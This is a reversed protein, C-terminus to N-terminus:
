EQAGSTRRGIIKDHGRFSGFTITAPSPFEKGGGNWDYQLHDLGSLGNFDIQFSGTNGIGPASFILGSTGDVLTVTSSALSTYSATATGSGVTVGATLAAGGFQILEPFSTCDDLTNRVWASGNYYQTELTAPLDVTEPGSAGALRLRGHRLRLSSPLIQGTCSGTCDGAEGPDFDLGALNLGDLSDSIIVGVNALLETNPSTGESAFQGSSSDVSYVGSSWAATAGSLRSALNVGDDATSELGISVDAVDYGRAADYNSVVDGLANKATIKYDIDIASEDFYTFGSSACGDLVAPSGGANNTLEFESPYFRGIDGSTTGIVNGVGLYDGDGIEARLTITGVENFNAVVTGAGDTSGSLSYSGSSLAGANSDGDPYTLAVFTVKATEASSEQGFNPTTGGLANLAQVGVNFNTGAAIFGSGSATTAPNSAVSVVLDAPKSIFENSSGTVTLAPNNGSAPVTLAGYLRIRGVDKYVLPIPAYGSGNFVLNVAWYALSAGSNNDEIGTASGGTPTVTLDKDRQCTSPNVCEYALNTAITQSAITSDQTCVSGGDVVGVLVQNFTTGATLTTLDDGSGDPAGNENADLFFELSMSAANFTYTPDESESNSGDTVNITTAGATPHRLYTTIANAGGFGISISANDANDANSVWAGNGSSTTLTVTNSTTVASHGANHATITVPTAVCNAGNADNNSSGDLDYSVAYHHLSPAAVSVTSTTSNSNTTGDNIIWTITRNATNPTSANTNQYTISQLALKYNAKSASGSLSLTGNSGNWSGTIGNANTFALVDESTQFGSSISISASALNDDDADTVTLASDIVTADDNAEFMLTAGADSIVPADNLDAVTITSTVGSSNAAGDNVVWTVTRNDNNPDSTNTNQYTVSELATEYNAITASGTLTLVGSTNSEVSIGLSTNGLALVDESSQYGGSITITAGEINTDDADTITLSSDIVTAADDETYALTSGADSVTPADNSDAITITSTIGSSSNDGDSVVWTITRNTNNPDDTENNIYTISELATEYNAKTASGSLTLVGSSSNWSGTIGNANSFALVDESSQYGSSVTITASEINSDDVDTITLSSDIVTASDGETYALTAGADALVPADNVKAVTITSTAAVSNATGDNIVWSVVRNTNNPDATNTNQYTISELATEYNVKSASGSLSLVGTGSDWSGTIDDTNTFALVDESSQYGSSITITASAINTDDVDAITLSADIVTASDGETYALTASADSLVPADNADGITITSTVASSSAGGDNIVWSVVRNTNNPDDTNTNQYTISELATEYNAKSASGSLTLVGSGSDWSGSIDNANTFALVDESSEYGSSITITASELNSDDVDTISLSNDIVTAADGETYALTGGANALVPADNVDAVTITSTVAASNTDGDNILWTITRNSNNPDDTNTNQYTISELATEYNAKSASGSLTLVGTVSNWSGTIGDANSFALVDESSQYGSSVTITASEINTDDGDSISLASDIITSSDGEPFGLTNGAGSLVPADNVDGVTITSTAASSNATGDNIVWSVIRNTNNPDATNTNQYTISELATEYNAKSASGSLTLVGSGSNWSGSIGNANSFALVDESSQYGSSITITASEINTDDVDAITLTSDIVTANDGETYALTDGADSLTPADNVDAVTITSTAASSNADGDNILWTITRNSNNPDNTNSNFYTVSELATKYNDKTTSGTLTLVGSSNSAVSIGLGTNGLSLVDESSQYGSSITITAGEINTDDGDTITLSSDIATASDGETYALTAGADSLVPADNTDAVTITSTVGSSNATGDSVVWTITRNSNNPNNTNSNFYTVSELAIEYNDQTTSGTLTLVGSSNSAVSIGLGTNGLALVDESAQYGSSITITAGEINTDDVDTITLTGDIATASDGETYALTAGADSLVPADNADAVTITSTVASSNADGDNIVWSITRNSNNPDATNTNQYTISELATEYNAKSASGSLTLVGSGSNWSGSIGNANTFALVDESSQYGSSVTITASNINSDDSDTVGLSSDIVTASGDEDYALTAGAGTIAPPNNANPDVVTFSYINSTAQLPKNSKERLEVYALYSGAALRLSTLDSSSLSVTGTGSDSHYGRIDSGGYESSTQSSYSSGGNSSIFLTTVHTHKGVNGYRTWTLNNNFPASTDSNDQTISLIACAGSCSVSFTITATATLSGDSLTYTFTDFGSFGNPPAYAYDGDSQLTLSGGQATTFSGSSATLSASEPDYDNALVSTSSNLTTNYTASVTDDVGIPADNTGPNSDTVRAISVSLPGGNVENTDCDDKDNGRITLANTGNSLGPFSPSGGEDRNDDFSTSSVNSFTYSDGSEDEIDINSNNWCYLTGGMTISTGKWHDGHGGDCTFVGSNECTGTIDFTFHGTGTNVVVNSVALRYYDDAWSHTANFTLFVLVLGLAAKYCQRKLTNRDARNVLKPM